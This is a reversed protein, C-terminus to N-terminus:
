CLDMNEWKSVNAMLFDSSVRFIFIIYVIATTAHGAWAAVCVCVHICVSWFVNRLRLFVVKQM